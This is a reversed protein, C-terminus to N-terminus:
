VCSLGAKPLVLKGIFLRSGNPFRDWQGETVYHREEELFNDYKKQVDPGWRVDSDPTTESYETPRDQSGLQTANPYAAGPPSVPIGNSFPPAQRFSAPPPAFLIGGASISTGPAAGQAVLPVNVGPPPRYTNAPKPYNSTGARNKSTDDNQPYAPLSVQPRPPLSSHAPLSSIGKPLSSSSPNASTPTSLSSAAENKEANATINDLLAQIDVEGSAIDEYTHTMPQIAEHESQDFTPESAALAQVDVTSSHIPPPQLTQTAALTEGQSVATILPPVSAPITNSDQEAYAQSIVQNDSGDAGDSDFTMAYDDSDDDEGAQERPERSIDGEIVDPQERYADSFSSDASPSGDSRPLEDAISDKLTFELSDLQPSQSHTSTM